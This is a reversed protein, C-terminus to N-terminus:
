SRSASGAAKAGSYEERYIQILALTMTILLPGLIIGLFGYVRMGGMIGFFLLLFPLKTKSGIIIPRVVNDVASVILVCWALLVLGASTSKTLLYLVAPVWVLMPGFPPILATLAAAFGLVVPVPVGTVAFGIGALLGQGAATLVAGRVIATVADYLRRALNEKHATEMPVVDLLWRVVAGGDKLFFFLSLFLIALNVGLLVVNRAIGGGVEGITEGILGANRAIMSQLDIHMGLLMPKAKLWLPLLAPPVSTELSSVGADKTRKVLADAIPYLEASEKVLLWVCVLLPLVFIVAVTATSLFAATHRQKVRATIAAHLPYFVLALTASWMLATLFPSFIRFLQYLLLGLLAFFFGKFVRERDQRSSSERASTM